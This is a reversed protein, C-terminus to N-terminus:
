VCSDVVTDVQNIGVDAVVRIGNLGHPMTELDEEHLVVSPFVVVVMQCMIHKRCPAFRLPTGGQRYNGCRMAFVLQNSHSTGEEVVQAM